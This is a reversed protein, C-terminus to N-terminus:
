LTKWKFLRMLPGAVVPTGTNDPHAFAALPLVLREPRKRRARFTKERARAVLLGPWWFQKASPLLLWPGEVEARQQAPRFRKALIFGATRLVEGGSLIVSSKIV